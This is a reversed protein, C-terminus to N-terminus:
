SILGFGRVARSYHATLEEDIRDSESTGLLESQPAAPLVGEETLQFKALAARRIASVSEGRLAAAQMRALYVGGESLAALEDLEEDTAVRRSLARQRALVRGEGSRALRRLVFRLLLVPGGFVRGMVRGLFGFVEYTTGPHEIGWFSADMKNGAEERAKLPKAAGLLADRWSELAALAESVVREDGTPLRAYATALLVVRHKPSLALWLPLGVVLVPTRGLGMRDYTTRTALDSVAVQLPRRMGIRDAVHGAVRYLEPAEARDLPEAEAPLRGLRPRLAWGLALCVGGVLWSLILGPDRLIMWGGLAVFGLTLLHVM